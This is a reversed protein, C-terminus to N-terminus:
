VSRIVQVNRTRSDPIRNAQKPANAQFTGSFFEECYFEFNDANTVALHSHNAAIDRCLRHGYCTGGGGPHPHDKTQAESHSLEHIIVGACSDTGYRVASFFEAGLLMHSKTQDLAPPTIPWAAGFYGGEHMAGDQSFPEAVPLDTPQNEVKHSGRFYLVVTRNCLARGIANLTKQVQEYNKINSVPGFWREFRDKEAGPGRAMVLGAQAKTVLTAAKSFSEYAENEDKKTAYQWSGASLEFAGFGGSGRMVKNAVPKAGATIHTTLRNRLQAKDERKLQSKLASVGATNGNGLTLYALIVGRKLHRLFKENDSMNFHIGGLSMDKGLQAKTKGGGQMWTTIAAVFDTGLRYGAAKDDLINALTADFRDVAEKSM